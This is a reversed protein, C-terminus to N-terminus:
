DASGTSIPRRGHRPLDAPTTANQSKGPVHILWFADGGIMHPYVVAITAAAAIMAEIANGGECCPSHRNRQSRLRLSQWASGFGFDRRVRSTLPIKESGNPRWRYKHNPFFPKSRATSMGKLVTLISVIRNLVTKRPPYQSVDHRLTKGLPNASRVRKRGKM